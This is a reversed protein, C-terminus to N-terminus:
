RMIMSTCTDRILQRVLFHCIIIVELHLFFLLLNVLTLDNSIKKKPVGM